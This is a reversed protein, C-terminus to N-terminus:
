PTSREAPVYFYVGREENVQRTAELDLEALAVKRSRGGAFDFLTPGVIAYNRVERRHGDRFVLVTPDQEAPPAVPPEPRSEEAVRDPRRGRERRQEFDDEYNDGIERRREVRLPEGAEVVEPEPQVVYTMPAYPYYPVYVPVFVPVRHRFRHRPTGFRVNFTPHHGFSVSGGFSPGCCFRNTQFGAPGLSTVSAPVGPPNFFTKSGGLSTVSPPTGHIQAQAPAAMALGMAMGLLAAAGPKKM